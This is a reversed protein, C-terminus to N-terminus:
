WQTKQAIIQAVGRDKVIEQYWFVRFDRFHNLLEQHELMQM